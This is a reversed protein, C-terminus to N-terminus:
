GRPEFTKAIERAVRLFEERREPPIQLATEVCERVYDPYDDLNIGLASETEAPLTKQQPVPEDALLDDVTCGLYDALKKVTSQRPITTDTWGTYTSPNMGLSRLVTTPAVGRLTCVRDFNEKFM